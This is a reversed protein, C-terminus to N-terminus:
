KRITRKSFMPSRALVITSRSLSFYLSNEEEGVVVQKRQRVSKTVSFLPDTFLSDPKSFLDSGFELEKLSTQVRQYIRKKLNVPLLANPKPYMFDSHCICQMIRAPLRFSFFSLFYMCSRNKFMAPDRGKIQTTGCNCEVKTSLVFNM